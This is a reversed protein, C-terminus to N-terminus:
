NLLNLLDQNWGPGGGVTVAMQPTFCCIFSAQIQTEIERDGQTVKGKLYIKKWFDICLLMSIAVYFSKQYFIESTTEDSTFTVTFCVWKLSMGCEECGSPWSSCDQPAAGSQPSPLCSLRHPGPSSEALVSCQQPLQWCRLPINEIILCFFKRPNLFIIRHNSSHASLKKVKKTDSYGFSQCCFCLFCM